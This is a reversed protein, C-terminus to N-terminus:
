DVVPQPLNGPGGLARWQTSVMAAGQEKMTPIKPLLKLREEDAVGLARV